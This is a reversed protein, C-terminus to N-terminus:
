TFDRWFGLLEWLKSEEEKWAPESDTHSELCRESETNESCVLICPSPCENCIHLKAKTFYSM